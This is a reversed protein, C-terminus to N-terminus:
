KASDTVKIRLLIGNETKSKANVNINQSEQFISFGAPLNENKVVVYVSEFDFNSKNLVKISIENMGHKLEIMPPSNAWVFVFSLLILFGVNITKYM